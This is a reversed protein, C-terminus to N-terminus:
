GGFCCVWPSPTCTLPRLHWGSFAGPPGCSSPDSCCPMEYQIRVWLTLLCAANATSPTTTSRTPLTPVCILHLFFFGWRNIHVGGWWSAFCQGRGLPARCTGGSSLTARPRLLKVSSLSPAWGLGATLACVRRSSDRQCCVGQPSPRGAETTGPGTQGTSLFVDCLYWSPSTRSM